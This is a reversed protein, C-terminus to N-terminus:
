ANKLNYWSVLSGKRGSARDRDVQRIEDKKM